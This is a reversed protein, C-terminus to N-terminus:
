RASSRRVTGLDNRVLDVIMLNEARDKASAALEARLTRTRPRTAGRPRTGKIPEHSWSGTPPRGASVTRAVRSLM